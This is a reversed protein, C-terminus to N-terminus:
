LRILNRNIIGPFNKLTIKEGNSDLLVGNFTGYISTYTTRIFIFNRTNKDVSAPTFTLDVMSETDQIIWDKSIGFPHTMCVPPLATQQGNVILINENYKDSDASNMNSNKLQFIINKDKVTGLAWVLSSISHLKFYVRNIMMASLGKSNDAEENNISLKGQIPMTTFWTASCRSSVPAPSVFLADSHYLSDKPSFFNGTCNPRVSDGKLRFKMAMHQHDSGWFVKIYRSKRFSICTGANTSHPIFRRRLGMFSFYALKKGTEKNWFIVRAFGLIKFDFFETFGMFKETSFIYDLRSKIRLRSIFVPLPLGAYPARMGKIDIKPSIDNYTGYAAKGNSVISAPPDRFERRYM